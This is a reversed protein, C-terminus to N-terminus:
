IAAHNRAGERRRSCESSSIQSDEFSNLAQSATRLVNAMVWHRGTGGSSRAPFTCARERIAYLEHTQAHTRLRFPLASCMLRGRAALEYQGASPRPARPRPETDAADFLSTVPSLEPSEPGGMSMLEFQGGPTQEDAAAERAAAEERLKAAERAAAKASAERM